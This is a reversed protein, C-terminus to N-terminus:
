VVYEDSIMFLEKIICEGDISNIVFLIYLFIIVRYLVDVILNRHHMIFINDQMYFTDHWVLVKNGVVQNLKVTSDVYMPLM